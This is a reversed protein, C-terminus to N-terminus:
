VPGTRGIEEGSTIPHSSLGTQSYESWDVTAMLNCESRIIPEIAAARTHGYKESALKEIKEDYGQICERLAATMRVPPLMVDRVEVSVTAESKQAFSPSSCKPLRTGM